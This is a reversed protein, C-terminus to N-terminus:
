WISVREVKGVLRTSLQTNVGAYETPCVLGEKSEFLDDALAFKIKFISDAILVGM